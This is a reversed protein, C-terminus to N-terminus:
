VFRQKRKDKRYMIVPEWGGPYMAFSPLRQTVEKEVDEGCPCALIADFDETLVSSRRSESM